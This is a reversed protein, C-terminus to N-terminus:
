CSIWSNQRCWFYISSWIVSSLVRWKEFFMNEQTKTGGGSVVCTCSFHIWNLSNSPSKALGSPYGLVGPELNIRGSLHSKQEGLPPTAEFGAGSAGQKSSLFIHYIVLQFQRDHHNSLRGLVEIDQRKIFCSVLWVRWFDVPLYIVGLRKLTSCFDELVGSIAFTM